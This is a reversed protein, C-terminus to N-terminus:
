IFRRFTQNNIVDLPLTSALYGYLYLHWVGSSRLRPAWRGENPWQTQSAHGTRRWVHVTAKGAESDSYLM